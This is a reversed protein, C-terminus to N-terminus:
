FGATMRGSFVTEPGAANNRLMPYGLFLREYDDSLLSDSM